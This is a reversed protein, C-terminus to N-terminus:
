RKNRRPNPKRSIEEIASSLISSPPSQPLAPMIDPAQIQASQEKWRIVNYFNRINSVYSVAEHGRAYGYRLKTFYARKTLLLLRPRVDEWRNPNAGQQQTLKRADELHYFGINYAALALWLRDPDEIAPNLSDYMKRFYGAGGRISQAPDERNDIRMEQAAKQTLMMFGRVGTPSVAGPDWHSEQYSLAALLQWDLGYQTAAAQLLPKWAPLRTKLRKTFVLAENYDITGIHGYFQHVLQELRGSSKAQALFRNVALQLSTDTSKPLAWALPEPETLDFAQRVMPYLSANMQLAQSDVIAIDRKGQNVQDLLDFSDIDLDEEWRLEPYDRKLLRLREAYSSQSEILLNKGALDALSKPKPSGVRYIVKQSMQGYPDSFAIQALRKDTVSIGAAALHIQHREVATLLQGLDDFDQIVLEVGLYAAFDELLLYEFGTYSGDTDQYFTTPGNRSGVLLVGADQIRSLRNPLHSHQLGLTLLCLWGSLLVHNSLHLSFRNLRLYWSYATM